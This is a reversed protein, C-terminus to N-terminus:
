ALRSVHNQVYKSFAHWDILGDWRNSFKAIGANQAAVKHAPTDKADFVWDDSKGLAAPFFVVKYLSEISSLAYWMSNQKFYKEVYDLQEVATMKRLNWTSTGLAQATKPMFQILGTAWSQHNVIRPDLGSEAKMIRVMDDYNAWITACVRYLRISFDSNKELLKNWKLYGWGPLSDANEIDNSDMAMYREGKSEYDKIDNEGLGYESAKQKWTDKNFQNLMILVLKTDYKGDKLEFSLEYYGRVREFQTLIEELVVKKDADPTQDYTDKCVLLAFKPDIGRKLSESIIEKNADPNQQLFEKVALDNQAQLAQMEEKTRTKPIEIKTGEQVILRKNNASFFEWGFWKRSYIEGWLSVENVEPPLVQWATTKLYFEKNFVGDFTFTFNMQKVEGTSVQSFDVKPSTIHSLRKDLSLKLFEKNTITKLVDNSLEQREAKSESIVPWKKETPLSEKVEPSQRERSSVSEWESFFNLM